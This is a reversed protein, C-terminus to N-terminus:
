SGYSPDDTIEYYTDAEVEEAEMYLWRNPDTDSVFAGTAEQWRFVEGDPVTLTEPVSAELIDSHVSGALTLTM